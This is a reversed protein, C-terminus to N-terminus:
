RQCLQLLLIPLHLTVCSTTVVMRESPPLAVATFIVALFIDALFAGEVTGRRHLSFHRFLVKFPPFLRFLFHNATFPYHLMDTCHAGFMPALKLSCLSACLAVYLHLPWAVAAYLVATVKQLAKVVGCHYPNCPCLTCNQMVRGLQPCLLQTSRMCHM